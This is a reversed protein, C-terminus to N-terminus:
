CIQGMWSHTGRLVYEHACLKGIQLGANDCAKHALM